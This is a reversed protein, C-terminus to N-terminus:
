KSLYTSHLLFEPKQIIVYNEEEITKVKEDEITEFDV